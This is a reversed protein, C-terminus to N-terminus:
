RGLQAAPRVWTRSRRALPDPGFRNYGATGRRFGIEALGWICFAVGGLVCVRLLLLSVDKVDGFSGAGYWLLFGGVVVILLPVIYFSVLWWASRDRDHLRKISLAITSLFMAANLGYSVAHFALGKGVALGVLSLVVDVVLFILLALWYRARNIRGRFGFFFTVADM